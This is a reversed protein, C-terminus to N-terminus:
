ASVVTIRSSDFVAIESSSISINATGSPTPALGVKVVIGIVGPVTNIPTWFRNVIVDQGIIHTLGYALVAAAILDDGNDPYVAGENLDTNADIEIGVYIDKDAPRNFNIIHSVGQSDVIEQTVTGVTQIGAAKSALIADAIADNEGGYVVVEISHPPRNQSDIVDTDNEVVIVQTVGPVAAVKSRIGVVVASGPRQLNELRRQRLEADTEINRGLIADLTNTVSDAGSIPTEIVTLSGSNAHVPGTVECECALDLIGTTIAGITGGETTVFRTTPDGTASVIFGIPIVTGNTGTIRITVTSKTADLPLLNTLAVAHRLAINEATDPYHANYIQEMLEWINAERESHIAIQQGFVSQPTLNIGAGHASKYEDELELKIDALRKAVFGSATIGYVTM